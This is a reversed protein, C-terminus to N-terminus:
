HTTYKYILSTAVSKLSEEFDAIIVSDFNIGGITDLMELQAIKKEKNSDNSNKVRKIEDLLNQKRIRYRTVDEIQKTILTPDQDYYFKDKLKIKSKKVGTKIESM